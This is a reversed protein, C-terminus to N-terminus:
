GLELTQWDPLGGTVIERLSRKCLQTIESTLEGISVQGRGTVKVQYKVKGTHMVKSRADYFTGMLNAIKKREELTNGVNRAVRTKLRYSLESNGDSLYLVEFAIALDILSDEVTSHNLLRDFAIDLRDRMSQDHSMYGEYLQKAEEFHESGVTVGPYAGLRVSAVGLGGDEWINVFENEDMMSWLVSWTVRSDVALALAHCFRGVEFPNSGVHPVLRRFPRAEVDRNMENVYDSPKMYRPSTSCDQVLIAGGVFRGRYRDDLYVSPVPQTLSGDSGESPVLRVGEYVDIEEELRIGSLLAFDQYTCEPEQLSVIFNRTAAAPGHLVLLELLRKVLVETPQGPFYVSTAAADPLQIRGEEVLPALALEVVQRIHRRLSADALHLEWLRPMWKVNRDSTRRADTVLVAYAAPAIRQEPNGRHIISLQSQAAELLTTLGREIDDYDKEILSIM